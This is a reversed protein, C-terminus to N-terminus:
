KGEIWNGCMGVARNFQRCTVRAETLTWGSSCVSVWEGGVCVEVLGSTM